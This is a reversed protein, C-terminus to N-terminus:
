REYYISSVINTKGTLKMDDYAFQTRGANFKCLLEIVAFIKRKMELSDSRLVLFLLVDVIGANIGKIIKKGAKLKVQM